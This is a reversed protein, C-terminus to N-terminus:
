GDSFFEKKIKAFQESSRLKFRKKIIHDINDKQLCSACIYFSRGHGDFCAIDTKKQLRLM